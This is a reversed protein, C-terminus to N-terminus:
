GPTCNSSAPSCSSCCSVRLPRARPKPTASIAIFPFALALNRRDYSFYLAWILTFPITIGLTVPLARRAALSAGISVVVASLLPTSLEADWAAWSWALRESLSRGMHVGASAAQEHTERGEHVQIEKYVNWPAIVLALALAV